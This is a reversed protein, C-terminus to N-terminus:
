VFHGLIGMSPVRGADCKRRETRRKRRREDRRLAATSYIQTVGRELNEELFHLKAYRTCAGEQPIKLTWGMVHGFQGRFLKYMMSGDIVVKWPFEILMKLQMHGEAENLWRSTCYITHDPTLWRGLDDALDSEEEHCPGVTYKESTFTVPYRHADLALDSDKIDSGPVIHRRLRALANKCHPCTTSATCAPM